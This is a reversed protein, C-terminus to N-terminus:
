SLLLATEYFQAVTQSNIPEAGLGIWSLSSLDFNYSKQPRYRNLLLELAFNPMSIYNVRKESIVQLFQLPRKAFQFPPLLYLPSQTFVGILFYGVLGMDHYMPLWSALVKTGCFLDLRAAIDNLNTLLNEISIVIGKPVGTSGSTFQVFATESGGRQAIPSLIEEADTSATSFSSFPILECDFEHEKCFEAAFELGEDDCLYTNFYPLLKMMRHEYASGGISASQPPVPVPVAGICMIAFWLTSFEVSTTASLLLHDGQVVGRKQLFRAYSLVTKYFNHYSLYEFTRKKENFHFIGKGTCDELKEWLTDLEICRKMESM